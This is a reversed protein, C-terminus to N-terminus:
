AIGADNLRQELTEIKALAEQLAATLLPVLKSQDIGQYVPNGEDDVEDKTGTVCEPVVAQAEHAIFGDVTKDPDAIFNFRHVQLQSLRDIAGTLPVINEKLRYDSSTNYATASASVSISGVTSGNRAFRLVDGDSSTGIKSIFFNPSTSNRASVYTGDSSLNIGQNANETVGLAATTGVCVTGGSTIRMREVPSSGSDPTTSFVLRGPYDGSGGSGDTQGVIAAYPSGDSAGFVITGLGSGSAISAPAQGRRLSFYADTTSGATSGLISILSYQSDGVSPSTSTGVLFRGSADWRGRETFTAGTAFRLTNGSGDFYIGTGDQSDGTLLSVGGSDSYAYLKRSASGFQILRGTATVDLPSNPTTSGIGVRNNTADIYLTGSDINVNGSSDAAILSGGTTAPLTITNDGAIASAQIETFGSTSGRLRLKSM